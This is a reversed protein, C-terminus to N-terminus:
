RRGGDLLGPPVRRGLKTYEAVAADLVHRMGPQAGEIAADYGAAVVVNRIDGGSLEVTAALRDADVPDGPDIPGLRAVHVQWLRRRTPEDPDPFHLIFSLRRSFAPDLSGRLNTTLITIGDFQEMRQLLYAVEQNAYRDHADKVESRRGFLAEAEDFFLLVNLSEARHFVQELNKQTQGIYKDVVAALDVRLVDIGLEAAVVHAALTKGTGPSGSFLATIGGGSGAGAVILGRAILEERHRAWGILRRIARDAPEPLVLDALDVGADPETSGALQRAVRRVLEATVPSGAAAALRTSSRALQDLLDPSLRLGALAGAPPPEGTILAWMRQCEDPGLRPAILLYPHVATSLHRDWPTAAVAIVPVPPRGLVALLAAPDPAPQGEATSVLREAGTLLLCRSTLAAERIAVRLFRAAGGDPGAPVSLSLSRVGIGALAGGAMNLGAAGVPSHIWVFGAGQELARVLEDGGPLNLPVPDIVLPNLGSDPHEAGALHTVVRDPCRFERSLWPGAAGVEILACSALRAGDAFRARASGSLSSIGLLELALGISPHCPASGGRLLGFTLAVNGDLDAAAALLLLDRDIEDLGFLETLLELRDPVQDLPDTSAATRAYDREIVGITAELRSRTAPDAGARRDAAAALWKAVDVLRGFM